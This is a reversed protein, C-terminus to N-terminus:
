VPEPAPEKMQHMEEGGLSEQEEVVSYLVSVGSLKIAQQAWERLTGASATPQASATEAVTAVWRLPLNKNKQLLNSPPPTQKPSLFSACLAELKSLATNALEFVISRGSHTPLKASLIGLRGLLAGFLLPDEVVPRGNYTYRLSTVGELQRYCIGLEELFNSLKKFDWGYTGHAYNSTFNFILKDLVGLFESGYLRVPYKKPGMISFIRGTGRILIRGDELMAFEGWRFMLIFLPAISSLKRKRGAGIHKKFLHSWDGKATLWRQIVNLPLRDSFSFAEALSQLNIGFLRRAPGLRAVYDSTSAAFASFDRTIMLFGLRLLKTHNHHNTIAEQVQTGVAGTSSSGFLYNIDRLLLRTNIELHGGAGVWGLPRIRLASVLHFRSTVDLSGRLILRDILAYASQGLGSSPPQNTKEIPPLAKAGEKGLETHQLETLLPQAVRVRNQTPTGVGGLPHQFPVVAGNIPLSLNAPDQIRQYFRASNEFTRIAYTKLPQTKAFNADLNAVGM